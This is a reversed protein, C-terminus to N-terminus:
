TSTTKCEGIDSEECINIFTLRSKSVHENVAPKFVTDKNTLEANMRLKQLFEQKQKMIEGLREHIPRQALKEGKLYAM